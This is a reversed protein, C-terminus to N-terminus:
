VLVEHNEFWAVWFTRKFLDVREDWMAKEPNDSLKVCKTWTGDPRQVEYPKVVVSMSWFPGHPEKERPWTGKTNNTFNTWKWFTIPWYHSNKNYIDIVTKSDLWDSPIRVHTKPDLWFRALFKEYEPIWINPDKSDFRNGNHAMAIDEPCHDFYFTTGFTDPLLISLWPFHKWWKRDIDYMTDIIEQPEDLLATPIMRLEHANTGKPNANWMERAIMVNSTGMYQWPLKANLIENVMRQIDTSASRRTGFESLTVWPNNKYIKVDEYLRRITNNIIEDFEVNTIREKKTYHYLYLTNVIKLGLVEWMISTKWPWTFEVDYWGQWDAEVSYDSLKYDQLFKLTEERFLQTWTPNQMWRLFSIDAQSVWKIKSTADFQEKLADLPIVDAINIDKNRIKMKWRVNINSYEPHALIFDLMLFKYIDNNLLNDVEAEDRAVSFVDSPRYLLNSKM